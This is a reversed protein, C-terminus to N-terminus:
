FNYVTDISPFICTVDTQTTERVTMVYLRKKVRTLKDHSTALNRATAPVLEDLRLVLGERLEM